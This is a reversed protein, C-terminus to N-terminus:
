SEQSSCRRVSGQKQAQLAFPPTTDLSKRSANIAKAFVSRGDELRLVSALGPSFGGHRSEAAVVPSGLGDAIAFRVEAPVDHWRLRNGGSAVVAPHDTKPVDMDGIM